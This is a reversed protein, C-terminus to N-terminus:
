KSVFYIILVVLLTACAGWTLDVVSVITPWNRLTAQNTFNYAGYAALGLLGGLLVSKSMSYNYKLMPQIVLFYIALSYVPYFLAAPFYNFRDAFLHSLQQKYFWGSMLSLWIADLVLLSVLTYIYNM